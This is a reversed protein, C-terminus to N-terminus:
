RCCRCPSQGRLAVQLLACTTNSAKLQHSVTVVATTPFKGVPQVQQFSWHTPWAVLWHDLLRSLLVIMGVANIAAVIEGSYEPKMDCECEHEINSAAVPLGTHKAPSM